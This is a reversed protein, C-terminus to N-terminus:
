NEDLMFNGLGCKGLPTLSRKEVCGCGAIEYHQFILVGGCRALTSFVFVRRNVAPEKNRNPTRSLKLSAGWAVM